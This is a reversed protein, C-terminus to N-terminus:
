ESGSCVEQFSSTGNEDVPVPEPFGYQTVCDCPVPRGGSGCTFIIECLSRTSDHCGVVDTMETECRILQYNQAPDDILPVMDRSPIINFTKSDLDERSIPPDFSKRSLMANPGSLAVAPIGTQAGTIISLGGGLSHGTVGLGRRPYKAQLWEVFRTTDQYFSVRNISESELKTILKILEDIVPNWMYGMPLLERLGQMLVAPTWLQADTLMDWNNTTGRILVYSFNGSDPFSVLKFSVASELGAEDRFEQVTVDEDQAQGNFWADLESNTIEGRGRYALGAL